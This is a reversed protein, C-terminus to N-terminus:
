RNLVMTGNLLLSFHSLDELIDETVSKNAAEEEIGIKRIIRSKGAWILQTESDEDLVFLPM